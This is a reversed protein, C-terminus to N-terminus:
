ASPRIRMTLIRSAPIRHGRSTLRKHAVVSSRPRRFRTTRADRRQHWAGSIIILTVVTALLGPAGLLDRILRLAMARPIGSTRSFRHYRGGANKEAPPGHALGAGPMGRAREDEHPGIAALSPCSMGRSRARAKRCDPSHLSSIENLCQVPCSPAAAASLLRNTSTSPKRKM